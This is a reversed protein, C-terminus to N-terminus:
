VKKFNVRKRVVFQLSKGFEFLKCVVIKLKIFIAPLKGFPYLVSYSISFNTMELLKEEGWHKWFIQAASVYFGPSPFSNLANASLFKLQSLHHMKRKILYFVNYSFSFISTVLMKEKEWLTKLLRIGEPVDFTM